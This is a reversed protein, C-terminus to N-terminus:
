NLQLEKMMEEFDVATAEIERIKARTILIDPGIPMTSHKRLEELLAMQYDESELKFEDREFQLKKNDAELAVVKQRLERVTQELQEQKAQMEQLRSDLPPGNTQSPTSKQEPKSPAPM